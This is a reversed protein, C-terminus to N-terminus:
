SGPPGAPPAPATREGDHGTRRAPPGGGAARPAAKRVAPPQRAPPGGPPTTRRDPRVGGDPPHDHFAVVIMCRPPPCPTLPPPARLGAGAEPHDAPDAQGRAADDSAVGPGRARSAIPRPGLGDRRTVVEAGHALLTSAWTQRLRHGRATLGAATTSREMTQPLANVSRPPAQCTRHWWVVGPARAGPPPARGQHLRAVAAPSREVRRAQRGTGPESPLAQPAWASPARTRHAAESVRRGGRRRGLGLARDRPPDIPALRRQVPERSRAHPWPRGHRVGSRPTVPPGAVRPQDLCWDVCPTLAQLRRPITAWSRGHPQPHEGGPDGARGAVQARPVAVPALGWRRALPDRAGTPRSCPRRALDPPVRARATQRRDDRTSRRQVGHPPEAPAMAQDDPARTPRDELQPSRRTVALCRPGRLENVGARAAGAPLLPTACTQRRAHPSSAHPIGARTLARTMRPRLHRAALPTGGQRTLRRPCMDRAAAAQRRHWPRLANAVDPSRSGVREVPGTSPELRLPGPALALASGPRRSVDGVRLGGRRRWVCRPRDRWAELGRVCASVEAAALPRPLDQPGLLDPRPRRSPSPPGDGQDRRCACVGPVVVLGPNQASFFAVHSLPPCAQLIPTPQRAAM